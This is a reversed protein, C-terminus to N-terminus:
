AGVKTPTESRELSGNEQLDESQVPHDLKRSQEEEHDMQLHESLNKLGRWGRNHKWAKVSLIIERQLHEWLNGEKIEM